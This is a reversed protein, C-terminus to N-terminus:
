VRATLLYFLYVFYATVFLGGEMRSVRKGSLFIPICALTAAAMVPIDIRALNPEVQLAQGPVLCTIGLIFLINFISSGLLNGIAIDRDNRLTGVITTVLEPSSTGIAIITLGILADSVGLSRALAVAQDVLLESGLVIIVIGAILAAGSRLIDVLPRVHSPTAFEQALELKTTPSGRHAVGIIALTYLIGAGVLVAGDFRTLAGDMAMVLLALAVVMMVPLDFRLTQSGLSLPRILASLGLILLLNVTNTGAINGVALSGNGRLAAEIGVALEPTSTGISVITLGIIMPPIRLRAALRAGGGVILEAGVILAILGLILWALAAM